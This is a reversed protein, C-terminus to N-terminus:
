NWEAPIEKMDEDQVAAKLRDIEALWVQQQQFKEVETKTQESQLVPTPMRELRKVPIVPLAGEDCITRLYALGGKSRLYRMLAVSQGFNNEKLRLIVCTQGLIWNDPEELVIGCRGVLGKTCFVIDGKRLIINQFGKTVKQLNFRVNKTPIEVVGASNFDAPAVELFDDGMEDFKPPLPRIVEAFDMLAHTFSEIKLVDQRDEAPVVFRNVSLCPEDSDLIREVPVLTMQESPQGNAIAEILSKGLSSLELANKRSSRPSWYSAGSFSAFSVTSHHEEISDFLYVNLPRSSVDCAEAPFELVSVLRQSTLIQRRANEFSPSYGVNSPVVFVMRGRVTSLADVMMQVQFDKTNTCRLGWPGVCIMGTSVSTTPFTKEFDILRAEIDVDGFLHAATYFAVLDKNSTEITVSKKAKLLDALVNSLVTGPVIVDNELAMWKLILVRVAPNFGMWEAGTRGCASLLGEFDCFARCFLPLGDNGRLKETVLALRIQQNAEEVADDTFLRDDVFAEGTYQISIAKLDSFSKIDHGKSYLCFTLLQIADSLTACQLVKKKMATSKLVELLNNNEM